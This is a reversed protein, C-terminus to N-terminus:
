KISEIIGSLEIRGSGEHEVKPLHLSYVFAKVEVLRLAVVKNQVRGQVM